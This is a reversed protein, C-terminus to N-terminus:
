ERAGFSTPAFNVGWFGKRYRHRDRPLVKVVHEHSNPQDEREQGTGVNGQQHCVDRMEGSDSTSGM